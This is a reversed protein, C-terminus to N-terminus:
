KATNILNNCSQNSSISEETNILAHNISWIGTIICNGGYRKVQNENLFYVWAKVTDGDVFVDVEGREYYNHPHNIGKYGELYDVRKLIESNDFEILQGYVKEKGVTMAPYWGLDYLRGHTFAPTIKIDYGGFIRHHNGFGQKLTGYVFIRHM